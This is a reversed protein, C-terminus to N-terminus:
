QEMKLITAAREDRQLFWQEAFALPDKVGKTYLGGFWQLDALKESISTATSAQSRKLCLFVPWLITCLRPYTSYTGKAEDWIRAAWIEVRVWDVADLESPLRIGQDSLWYLVESKWADDARKQVLRARARERDTDTWPGTTRRSDEPYDDSTSEEEEAGIYRAISGGPALWLELAGTTRSPEGAATVGTSRRSEIEGARTLGAAVCFPPIATDVVGSANAQSTRGDGITLQCLGSERTLIQGIVLTGTTTLHAELTIMPVQQDGDLSLYSIHSSAGERPLDAVVLTRFNLPFCEHETMIRYSLQAIVATIFHGYIINPDDNAKQM